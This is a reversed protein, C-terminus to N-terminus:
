RIHTWPAGAVLPGSGDGIHTWPAGSLGVFPRNTGTIHSWPGSAVDQLQRGETAGVDLVQWVGDSRQVKVDNGITVKSFDGGEFFIDVIPRKETGNAVVARRVTSAIKPNHREGGIDFSVFQLQALDENPMSLVSELGNQRLVHAMAAVRGDNTTIIGHNPHTDEALEVAEYTVFLIGALLLVVVIAGVLLTRCMVTAKRETTRFKKAIMIVEEVSFQGDGNVDWEKLFNLIDTDVRDLPAGNICGSKKVELVSKTSTKALTM